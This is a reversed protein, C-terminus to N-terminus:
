AFNLILEKWQAEGDVLAGNAKAWKIINFLREGSRDKIANKYVYVLDDYYWFKQEKKGTM